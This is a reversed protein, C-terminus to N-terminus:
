KSKNGNTTNFVNGGCSGVGGIAVYQFVAINKEIKSNCAVIIDNPDHPLRHTPYLIRAWIFTPVLRVIVILM